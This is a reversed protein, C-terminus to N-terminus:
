EVSNNMVIKPLHDIGRLYIGSDGKKTIKWDVILEFDKYKKVSVLNAGHGNFIIQGDRVSWNELM